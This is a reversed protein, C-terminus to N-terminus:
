FIRAFFSSDKWSTRLSRLSICPNRLRIRPKRLSIRSNSSQHTFQKVHAVVEPGRLCCFVVFGDGFAPDLPRSIKDFLTRVNVVIGSRGIRNSVTRLYLLDRGVPLCAKLIYGKYLWYSPMCESYIKREARPNTHPIWCGPCNGTEFVCTAPRLVVRVTLVEKAQKCALLQYKLGMTM